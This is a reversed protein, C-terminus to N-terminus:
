FQSVFSLMLTHYQPTNKGVLVSQSGLSCTVNHPLQYSIDWGFSCSFTDTCAVPVDYDYTGRPM